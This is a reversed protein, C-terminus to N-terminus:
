GNLVLTELSLHAYKHQEDKFVKMRKLRVARQKNKPLMGKVAFEIAHEPHKQMLMRLPTEKLHGKYGSHRYYMKDKMKNGTVAIKAANIVVVYDGSDRFDCFFGKHKGILRKSIEVALRGLTKGAADVVYWKRTKEIVEPKVWLTSNLDKKTVEM